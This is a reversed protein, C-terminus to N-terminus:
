ANRDLLVSGAPVPAYPGTLGALETLETLTRAQRQRLTSVTTDVASRGAEILRSLAALEATRSPDGEDESRRLAAVGPALLALAALEVGAQEVAAAAEGIAGEALAGQAQAIGALYREYHSRCDALLGM